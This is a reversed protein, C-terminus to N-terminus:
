GEKAIVLVTQNDELYRRRWADNADKVTGKYIIDHTQGDLVVCDKSPAASPASRFDRAVALERRATEIETRLLNNEARTTDRESSLAALDEKLKSVLEDVEPPEVPVSAALLTELETVRVELEQKTAM